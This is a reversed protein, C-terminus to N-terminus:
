TILKKEFRDSLDMFNVYIKLDPYPITAYVDSSQITTCPITEIWQQYEKVIQNFQNMSFKFYPLYKKRLNEQTFTELKTRLTSILGCEISDKSEWGLKELSFIKYAIIYYISERVDRCWHFFFKKLRNCVIFEFIIEKRLQGRFVEFNNYIFWLCRAVNLGNLDKLSIKIGMIFYNFDFAIPLKSHLISYQSFLKNLFKYAEQFCLFDYVNTKSFLIRVIVNLMKPNHILKCACNILAEPYEPINREKMELLFAKSLTKFGPADHMGLPRFALQYYAHDICETFFNFFECNRNEIIARWSPKNLIEPFENYLEKPILKYFDKWYLANVSYDSNEENIDLEIKRWEYIDYFSKSQVLQKVVKKFQALRFWCIALSKYIYDTTIKDLGKLELRSLSLELIKYLMSYYQKAISKKSSLKSKQVPNPALYGVDLEGRKIILTLCKFYFPKVYFSAAPAKEILYDALKIFIKQSKILSKSNEYLFCTMSNKDSKALLEILKDLLDKSNKCLEREHAPGHNISISIDYNKLNCGLSEIDSVIPPVSNKYNNKCCNFSSSQLIIGKETNVGSKTQLFIPMGSIKICGTVSGVKRGYLWLEENVSKCYEKHIKSSIADFDKQSSNRRLKSQDLTEKNHMPESNQGFLKTFGIWCEGVLEKELNNEKFLNIQIAADRIGMMTTPIEISHPKFDTFDWLATESVISYDSEKSFDSIFKLLVFYKGQIGDLLEFKYCISSIVLVTEQSFEIDFSIRGIILKNSALITSQHIPGDVISKISISASSIQYNDSVNIDLYSIQIDRLTITYFIRYSSNWVYKENKKELDEFRCSVGPLKIIISFKKDQNFDSQFDIIKVNSFVLFFSLAESIHINQNLILTKKGISKCNGM